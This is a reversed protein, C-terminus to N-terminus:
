ESDSIYKSVAIEYSWCGIGINKPNKLTVIYEKKNKILSFTTCDRMIFAEIILLESKKGNHQQGYVIAKHSEGESDYDCTQLEAPDFKETLTKVEFEVKGTPSKCIKNIIGLSRDHPAEDERRFSILSGISLTDSKDMKSILSVVSSSDAHYELTTHIKNTFDTRFEFASVLGISFYRNLRDAFIEKLKPQEGLLMMHVYSMLEGSILSSDNENNSNFRDHNNTYQNSNKFFDGINRLDIYQIATDIKKSRSKTWFPNEDEEPLIIATNSQGEIKRSIIDIYPTMHGIIHYIKQIETPTLTDNDILGLISIKIYIDDISANDHKISLTSTSKALRYLSHLDMWVWSPTAEHIIFYNLTINSLGLMTRNISLSLTKKMNWGVARKTIERAISWYGITLEKELEILAAHEAKDEKSKPFINSSATKLISKEIEFYSTRLLELSALRDKPELKVQNMKKLLDTLLKLSLKHNASLTKSIWEQLKQKDFSKEEAPNKKQIPVILFFSNKM